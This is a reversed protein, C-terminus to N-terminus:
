GPGYNGVVMIDRQAVQLLDDRVGHSPIQHEFPRRIHSNILASATVGIRIVALGSLHAHDDALREHIEQQLMVGLAAASKSLCLSKFKQLRLVFAPM